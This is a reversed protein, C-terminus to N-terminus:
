FDIPLRYKEYMKNAFELSARSIKSKFHLKHKIQLLHYMDVSNYSNAEMIKELASLKNYIKVM